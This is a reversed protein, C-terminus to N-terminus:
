RIRRVKARPTQGEVQLQWSGMLSRSVTAKPAALRRTVLEGEIVRWAQGNELEIVSGPSWGRFEGRIASEVSTEEPEAEARAARLGIKARAEASREDQLLRNLLALESASLRDLGTARMQEPTFRQEIPARADQAVASGAVALLAPLLLVAIRM